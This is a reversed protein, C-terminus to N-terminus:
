LFIYILIHSSSEPLQAFQCFLKGENEYNMPLRNLSPLSIKKGQSNCKVNGYLFIISLKHTTIHRGQHQTYANVGPGPCHGLTLISAEPKSDANEPDTGQLPLSPPPLLCLTEKLDPVKERPSVAISFSVASAPQYGSIPTKTEAWTCSNSPNDNIEM